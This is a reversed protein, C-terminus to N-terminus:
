DGKPAIRFDGLAVPPTHKDCVVEPTKTRASDTKMRCCSRSSRSRMTEPGCVSKLTVTQPEREDNRVLVVFRIVSGSPRRRIEARLMWLIDWLRGVEDQGEVGDPVAVYDAWVATTLAVPYSFGAEKATDTVDILIGDAIAEQRTYRHIVDMM